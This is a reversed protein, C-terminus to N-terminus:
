PPSFLLFFCVMLSKFKKKCFNVDWHQWLIKFSGILIRDSDLLNLDFMELHIFLHAQKALYEFENKLFFCLFHNAYWVLPNCWKSICVDNLFLFYPWHFCGNRWMAFMVLVWWREPRSVSSPNVKFTGIVFGQGLFRRCLYFVFCFFVQRVFIYFVSASSPSKKKKQNLFWTLGHSLAIICFVSMRVYVCVCLADIILFPSACVSPPRSCLFTHSSNEGTRVKGGGM